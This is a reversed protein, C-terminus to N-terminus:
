YTKKDLPKLPTVGYPIANSNNNTNHHNVICPIHNNSGSRVHKMMANNYISTPAFSFM